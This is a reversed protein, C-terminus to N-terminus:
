ARSRLIEAAEAMPDLDLAASAGARYAASDRLAPTITREYRGRETALIRFGVEHEIREVLTWLRGAAAPDQTRAAVCALGALCYASHRM